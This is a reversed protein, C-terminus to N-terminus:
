PATSLPTFIRQPFEPGENEPSHRCNKQEVKQKEPEESTLDVETNNKGKEIDVDETTESTEPETKDRFYSDWVLYCVVGAGILLALIILWSIWKKSRKRRQAM